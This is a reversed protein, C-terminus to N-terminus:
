TSAGRAPCRVTSRLRSTGPTMPCTPVTSPFFSILMALKASPRLSVLALLTAALVDDPAAEARASQFAFRVAQAGLNKTNDQYIADSPLGPSQVNTTSHRYWSILQNLHALVASGDLQLPPLTHPSAQPNPAPATRSAQPASPNQAGLFLVAASIAVVLAVIRLGSRHLAAISGNIEIHM